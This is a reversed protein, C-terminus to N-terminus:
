NELADEDHWVFWHAEIALVCDPDDSCVHHGDLVIATGHCHELDADCAVCTIIEIRDVSMVECYLASTVRRHIEPRIVRM